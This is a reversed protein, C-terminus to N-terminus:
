KDELVFKLAYEKVLFELEADKEICEKLVKIVVKRIDKHDAKLPSIKSSNVCHLGTVYVDVDIYSTRFNYFDGIYSKRDEVVRIYLRDDTQSYIRGELYQSAGINNMYSNSINLETFKRYLDYVETDMELDIRM